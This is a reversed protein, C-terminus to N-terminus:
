VLTGGLHAYRLYRRIVFNVPPPDTPGTADPAPAPPPQMTLRGWRAIAVLGVVVLLHLAHDGVHRDVLM